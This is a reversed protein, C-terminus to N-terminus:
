LRQSESAATTPNAKPKVLKKTAPATAGLEAWGDATAVEINTIPHIEWLTSRTPNKTHGPLQGAHEYDYLRWGTIRVQAGQKVLTQLASLTWGPNM